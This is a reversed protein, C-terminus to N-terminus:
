QQLLFLLIKLHTNILNETYWLIQAQKKKSKKKKKMCMEKIEGTERFCKFNHVCELRGCCGKIESVGLWVVLRGTTIHMARVHIYLYEHLGGGGARALM